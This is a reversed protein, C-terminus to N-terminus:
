LCITLLSQDNIARFMAIADARPIEIGVWNKQLLKSFPLKDSQDAKSVLNKFKSLHDSNIYAPMEGMVARQSIM